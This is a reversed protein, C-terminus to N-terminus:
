MKQSKLRLKKKLMRMDCMKEDHVSVFFFCFFCVHNIIHNRTNEIKKEWEELEKESLVSGKM